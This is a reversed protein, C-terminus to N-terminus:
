LPKRLVATGWRDPMLVPLTGIQRCFRDVVDRVNFAPAGYDHVAIIGGPVMNQWLIELASRTPAILDMDIHAFRWQKDHLEFSPPFWGAVLKLNHPAAGSGVYRAVENMTTPDFNGTHWSNPYIGREVDIDRQDFGEFTDFGYLTRYEDMYRYIVKLTMGVHVGLEIYDGPELMNAARVLHLLQVLRIQDPPDRPYKAEYSDRCAAFAECEHSSKGLAAPFTQYVIM